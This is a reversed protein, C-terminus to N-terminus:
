PVFAAIRPDRFREPRLICLKWNHIRRYTLPALLPRADYEHLPRCDYRPTVSRLTYRILSM